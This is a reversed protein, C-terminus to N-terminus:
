GSAIKYDRGKALFPALFRSLRNLYVLASKEAVDRGDLLVHLRIVPVNDQDAQAIMAELHRIHAHVNGDSLLGIFHLTNSEAVWKWTEGRFLAGSQVAQEVLAAGQDFIRGAGLANHGVESNGMDEDTPMGVAKGHARLLRFLPSSKAKNLFPMKAVHVANFDEPKGIGVGDMIILLLPGKRGKFTSLKQLSTTM